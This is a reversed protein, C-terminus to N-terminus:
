DVESIMTTIPHLVRFIYIFIFWFTTFAYGVLNQNIKFHTKGNRIVVSQPRYIDRIKSLIEPYM